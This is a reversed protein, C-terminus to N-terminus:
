QCGSGAAGGTVYKDGCLIATRVDLPAALYSKTLNAVFTATVPGAVWADYNASTDWVALIVYRYPLDTIQQLITYNLLHKPNLKLSTTGYSKLLALGMAATSTTLDPSFYVYVLVWYASKSGTATPLTGSTWAAPLSEVPTYQRDDIPSGICCGADKGELIQVAFRFDVSGPDALHQEFDTLNQWVDIIWSHNTAVTWNLIRVQQNGAQKLSDDRFKFLAPYAIAESNFPTTVPLVDFHTIDYVLPSPSAAVANGAFPAATFFLATIAIAAARRLSTWMAM